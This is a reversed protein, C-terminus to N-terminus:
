QQSHVTSLQWRIHGVDSSFVATGRLWGVLVSMDYNHQLHFISRSYDVSIIFWLLLM